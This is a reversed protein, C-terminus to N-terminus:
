RGPVFPYARAERLIDDVREESGYEHTLKERASEAAIALARDLVQDSTPEPAEHVMMMAKVARLCAAQFETPNPNRQGSQEPNTM